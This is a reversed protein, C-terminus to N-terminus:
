GMQILFTLVSYAVNILAVFKPTNIEFMGMCNMVVRNRTNLWIIMLTTRMQVYESRREPRFPIQACLDFLHQGIADAQSNCKSHFVVISLWIQWNRSVEDQLSDVLHCLFFYELLFFSVAAAFILTMFGIPVEHCAYFMAGVAFVSFYHVLLFVKGMM